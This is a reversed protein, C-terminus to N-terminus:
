ERKAYIQNGRPKKGVPLYIRSPPWIGFKVNRFWEPVQYKELSEWTPEFRGQMMPEDSENVMVQYTQGLSIVSFSMMLASLLVKSKM